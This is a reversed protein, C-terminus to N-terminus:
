RQILVALNHSYYMSRSPTALRYESCPWGPTICFSASRISSKLDMLIKHVGPFKWRLVLVHGDTVNQGCPESTCHQGAAKPTRVHSVM